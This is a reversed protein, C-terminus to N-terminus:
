KRAQASEGSNPKLQAEEGMAKVPGGPRVKQVGEAVVKEGAQVGNVIEIQGPTRLGVKVPRMQATGDAAIVYVATRDGTTMLASEPIIIAEDRLTLTLDLNAFMGPKLKHDANPIRAKMLLTRTTPDVQPALFYVEGKFKEKPFAAVKLEIAQGTKVEGVIREPVNFEAKVTDLDVLWTFTSNKSIVQGPSISRAGVIGSFPAYIRADQWLRKRLEVTALNAQLMSATQDYEQQSILKGALLQKNRDFTTQSMKLNAEAEALSATFKTEDLRILLAGKTVPQGEQFLIEAVTGETESKVEVFENAALSGVVALTEAIPQRKAEAAVVLTPPNPPPGGSAQQKRCGSFVGIAIVGVLLGRAVWEFALLSREESM